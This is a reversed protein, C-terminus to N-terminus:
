AASRTGQPRYLTLAMVLRIKGDPCHGGELIKGIINVFGPINLAEAIRPANEPKLCDPDDLLESMVLAKEKFLDYEEKGYCEYKDM